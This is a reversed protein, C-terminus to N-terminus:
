NLKNQKDFARIAPTVSKQRYLILIQRATVTVVNTYIIKTWLWINLSNRHQATPPHVDTTVVHRRWTAPWQLSATSPWSHINWTVDKLDLNKCLQFNHLKLNLLLGKNGYNHAMRVFKCSIRSVEIFKIPTFKYGAM